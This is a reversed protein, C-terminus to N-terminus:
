KIRLQIEHVWPWQRRSQDNCSSSYCSGGLFHQSDLFQVSLLTGLLDVMMGMRYLIWHVIPSSNAPVMHFVSETRHTFAKTRIIYRLCTSFDDRAQVVLNFAHHQHLIISPPMLACPFHRSTRPLLICINDYMWIQDYTHTMLCRCRSYQQQVNGISCISPLSSLISQMTQFTKSVNWRFSRIFKKM